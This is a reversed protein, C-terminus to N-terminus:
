AVQVNASGDGRGVNPLRDVFDLSEGGVEDGQGAVEDMGAKVVDVSDGLENAPEVGGQPNEGDQAIVVVRDPNVTAFGAEGSEGLGDLGGQRLLPDDDQLVLIAEELVPFGGQGDSADAVEPAAFRVEGLCNSADLWIDRSDNQGMVRPRDILDPIPSAIEDQTSM